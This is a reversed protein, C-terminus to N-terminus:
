AARLMAEVADCVATTAGPRGHARASAAMTRLRGPDGALDALLDALQETDLAFQPLLVAGGARVLSEANRTQHDDIASPLPVLVAPRGCVAIEAVTLAGARCVILDAWTYAAAMDDIFPSLREPTLGAVTYRAQVAAGHAPGCQHWIAPLEQGRARLAALAAPLAVNISEAGLSGGLVLLRLPRQGDYGYAADNAAMIIGSRVPNGIWEAHPHGAFPEPFGCLIRRACRALLRNASGAVANQEHIALPRRLLCAVLGGPVSVYGGMGVVARPRLRLLLILAQLLGVAQAVIGRLRAGWGKGRLGRASIAHLVFGAAPVVRAELGQRTGLWSVDYGRLRLEEATALAPYVHGGTGGAMMLVRPANM